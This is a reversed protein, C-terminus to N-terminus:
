VGYFPILVDRLGMPGNSLLLRSTKESGQELYIHPVQVSLKQLSYDTICVTLIVHFSIKKYSFVSESIQRNYFTNQKLSNHYIIFIDTSINLFRLSSFLIIVDFSMVLLKNCKFYFLIKVWKLIQYGSMCCFGPHYVAIQSASNIRPILFFTKIICGQTYTVQM